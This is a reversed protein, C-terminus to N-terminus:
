RDDKTFVPTKTVWRLVLNVLPVIIAAAPVVWDAAQHEEFGFATAVLVLLALINFAITKYGQM